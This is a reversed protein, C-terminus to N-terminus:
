FIEEISKIKDQKIQLYLDEPIYIFIFLNNEFDNIKNILIKLEICEIKEIEKNTIYITKREFNECEVDYWYGSTWSEYFGDSIALYIRRDSKVYKEYQINKDFFGYTSYTDIYYKNKYNGTPEIIIISDGKVENIIKSDDEIYKNLNTCYIIKKGKKFKIFDEENSFDSKLFNFTNGIKDRTKSLFHVYSENSDKKNYTYLCLCILVFWFINRLKKNAHRNVPIPSPIPPYAPKTNVNITQPNPKTVYLRKPKNTKQNKIPASNNTNASNKKVDLPFLIFDDEPPVPNIQTIQKTEQVDLPFLVFNDSNNIIPKSENRKSLPIINNLETKKDTKKM